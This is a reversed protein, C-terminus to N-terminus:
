IVKAKLQRGFLLCAQRKNARKMFVASEYTNCCHIATQHTGVGGGGNNVLFGGLNGFLGGNQVLFLLCRKSCCFGGMPGLGVGLGVFFGLRGLFGWGFIKGFTGEIRVLFFWGWVM